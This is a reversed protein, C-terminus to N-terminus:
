GCLCCSRTKFMGDLVISSTSSPKTLISMGEVGVVELLTLKEGMGLGQKPLIFSKGTGEEDFLIVVKLFRRGFSLKLYRSVVESISFAAIKASPLENVSVLSFGRIALADDSVFRKM